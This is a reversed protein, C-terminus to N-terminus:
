WWLSNFHKFFYNQGIKYREDGESEGNLRDYDCWYIIDDLIELWDDFSELCSPFGITLEKFRKLRPSLYRKMTSDLSWTETDDWGHNEIQEILKALRNIDKIEGDGLYGQYNKYSALFDKFTFEVNSLDVWMKDFHTEGDDEEIYFIVEQPINDCTDLIKTLSNIFKVDVMEPKSEDGEEFLYIKTDRRLFLNKIAAKNMKM